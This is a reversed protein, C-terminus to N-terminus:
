EEDRTLKKVKKRRTTEMEFYRYLDLCKKFMDFGFHIDYYIHEHYSGDKELHIFHPPQISGALYAYACAQLKWSISPKSSTKWDYIIKSNKPDDIILDVKGTILLEDDFFRKEIIHNDAPYLFNTDKAWNLWAQVYGRAEDPITDINIDFGCLIGDIIDHVLTGKNAAPQLVFDPVFEIGTFPSIIDSIRDYHPKDDKM